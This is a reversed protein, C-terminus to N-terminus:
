FHMNTCFAEKQLLFFLPPGATLDSGKATYKKNKTLRM